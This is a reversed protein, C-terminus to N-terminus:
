KQKIHLTISSIEKTHKKSTTELKEIAHDHRQSGLRLAQIEQHQEDMRAIFADMYQLFFEKTLTQELREEIRDLRSTHDAVTYNLRELNNEVSNLRKNTATAFTDFDKRFPRLRGDIMGKLERKQMNTSTNQTTM